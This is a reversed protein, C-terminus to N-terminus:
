HLFFLPQKSVILRVDLGHTGTMNSESYNRALRRLTDYELKCSILM